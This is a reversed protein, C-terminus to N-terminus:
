MESLLADIARELKPGPEVQEYRIMGRADIVYLSPYGQVHWQAPIEGDPGGAWWSRWNIGKRAIVDRVRERDADTNVGLLVV